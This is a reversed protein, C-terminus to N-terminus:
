RRRRRLLALMGLGGLLAASPEPITNYTAAFRTDYATAGTGNANFSSSGGTYSNNFGGGSDRAVQLRAVAATDNTATTSFVFAYQLTSDTLALNAFNWSLTALGAAGDVDITNTSSGVFTGGNGAGQYVNVYLSGITSGTGSVAKLFSVNTLYVTAPIPSNITVTDNTGLGAVTPTFSQVSWNGVAGTTSGNQQTFYNDVIVSAASASLTTAALVAFISKLKM